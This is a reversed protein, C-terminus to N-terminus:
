DILMLCAMKYKRMWMCFWEVAVVQFGFFWLLCCCALVIIGM